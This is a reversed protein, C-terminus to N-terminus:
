RPRAACPAQAAHPLAVSGAPVATAGHGWSPHGWRPPRGGTPDAALHAPPPASGGWGWGTGVGIRPTGRGRAPQCATGGGHLVQGRHRHHYREDPHAAQRAGRLGAPGEHRHAPGPPPVPVPHACPSMLVHPRLMGVDGAKPDPLGPSPCSVSDGARTGKVRGVSRCLQHSPPVSSGM